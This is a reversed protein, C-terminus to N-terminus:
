QTVKDFRNGKDDKFHLIQYGSSDTLSIQLPRQVQLTTELDFFVTKDIQKEIPLICNIRFTKFTYKTEVDFVGGYDYRRTEYSNGNTDAFHTKWNWVSDQMAYISIPFIFSGFFACVAVTGIVMYCVIRFLRIAWHSFVAMAAVLWCCWWYSLCYLLYDANDGRFSYGYYRATHYALLLPLAIKVWKAITSQQLRRMIILTVVPLIVTALVFLYWGLPLQMYTRLTEM